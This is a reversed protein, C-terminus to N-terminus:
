KFEAIIETWAPVVDSSAFRMRRPTVRHKPRLQGFGCSRAAEIDERMGKSVGWLDWVWVERACAIMFHFIHMGIKRESDKEDDLFQPCFLHPAYPIGHEIGRTAIARCLRRALAVNEEKSHRKSARFPSIVCILM